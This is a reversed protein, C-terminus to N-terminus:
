FIVRGSIGYGMEEVTESIQCVDSDRIYVDMERMLLDEKLIKRVISVEKRTHYKYRIDPYAKIKFFLPLIAETLRHEFVKLDETYFRFRRLVGLMTETNGTFHNVVYATNEGPYPDNRWMLWAYFWIQFIYSDYLAFKESRTFKLEVVRTLGKTVDLHGILVADGLVASLRNEPTWGEYKVTITEQFNEHERQGTEIREEMDDLNSYFPFLVKTIDSQRIRM